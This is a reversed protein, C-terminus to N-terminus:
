FAHILSLSNTMSQKEYKQRFKMGKIERMTVMKKGFKLYNRGVIIVFIFHFILAYGRSM